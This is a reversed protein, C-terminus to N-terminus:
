MEEHEWQMVYGPKTDRKWDNKAKYSTNYGGHGCGASGTEAHVSAFKSNGLSM